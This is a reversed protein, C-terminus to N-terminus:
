YRPEPELRELLVDIVRRCRGLSEFLAHEHASLARIEADKAEVQRRYDALRSELTTM